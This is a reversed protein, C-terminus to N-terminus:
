GQVNVRSLDLVVGVDGEGLLACGSIFEVEALHGSLPQTLVQQQGVL